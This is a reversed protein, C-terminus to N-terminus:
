GRMELQDGSKKSGVVGEQGRSSTGSSDVDILGRARASRRM